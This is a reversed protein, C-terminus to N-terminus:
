FNKHDDSTNVIDSYGYSFRKEFNPKFAIQFIYRDIMQNTYKLGLTNTAYGFKDKRFYQSERVENKLSYRYLDNSERKRYDRYNLAYEFSLQNRGKNYAFYANDNAFGTTFAHSLDVGGGYGNDLSRTIINVVSGVGAYRAPPFDYYEVRLVKDPPLMKLENDTVTAGNVLILLSGGKM